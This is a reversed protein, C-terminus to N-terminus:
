DDVTEFQSNYLEAYFGAQTLLDEHSGTEIIDGDKMVLILDANKITSLRHAIVFSTRGVMLRDMAEQILIETRTDVSSTAEDLILMPANEVMARAITLLQKQGQSISSDEALVMEYGGPLSEIFHSVNALDCAKKVDDLTAKKNGYAINETITGEFLWTDQLVMGFLDHVSERTMEKISVDDILIDGSTVEYFRMLLNVMTTKGAGTPGVLAVKQGKKVSASFDNIIIKDSNYGFKVNIFEVNGQVDNLIAKKHSEDAMEEAELFEFVREAAAAATQLNTAAQGIQSIPQTFRKTYMFISLIDGVLLRGTAALIGGLVGVAVYALNGVFIMIPMMLGSYFQSKWASSYLDENIKNFKRKSTNSANFVKIISQGSYAEEIHGNIEGLSAQHNRFYKQSFKIVIGLVFMSLPLSILAVLTLQWSIVFMMIGIGIVSTIAIILQSITQNMTQALTDVDNTVRSLVDGYSRTDFYSLPLRNIKKSIENRFRKAMKQTINNFIFSQIVSFLFSSVFFIILLIGINSIKDLNILRNQKAANQIENTMDGILKPGLINFVTGAIAFLLAVVIAFHYPKIYKITKGISKKFEKPKEKLAMNGPGNHRPQSTSTNKNNNQM